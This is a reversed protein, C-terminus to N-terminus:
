TEIAEGVEAQFRQLEGPNKVMWRPCDKWGVVINHTIIDRWPDRHLQACLRACLQVANRWTQPSFAGEWDEHCLEIGICYYNAKSYGDHLGDGFQRRAFATIGNGTGVHPLMEHIPACQIAGADDVVFHGAGFGKGGDKRSEWFDRNQQATTRPNAVWHIVLCEPRLLKIGPRSYKNVTLFQEDIKM